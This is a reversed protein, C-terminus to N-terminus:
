IFGALALPNTLICHGPRGLVGSCAYRSVASPKSYKSFSEFFSCAPPHHHTFFPVPRLTIIHSFLFLSSPLPNAHLPFFTLFPVLQTLFPVPQSQSSILNLCDWTLGSGNRLWDRVMGSAIGLCDRVMESGNGYHSLNRM